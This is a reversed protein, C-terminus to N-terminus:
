ALCALSAMKEERPRNMLSRVSILHFLTPPTKLSLGLGSQPCLILAWVQWGWVLVLLEQEIRYAGPQRFSEM